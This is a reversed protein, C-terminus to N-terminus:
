KKKGLGSTDKSVSEISSLPITISNPDGSHIDSKNGILEINNHSVYKVTTGLGSTKLVWIRDGSKFKSLQNIVESKSAAMVVKRM